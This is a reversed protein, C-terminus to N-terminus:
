TPKGWALEEVECIVSVKKLLYDPRKLSTEARPEYIPDLGLATAHGEFLLEGPSHGKM